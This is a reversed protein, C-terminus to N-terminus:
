RIGFPTSVGLADQQARWRGPRFATLLRKARGRELDHFSRDSQFFDNLGPVTALQRRTVGAFGMTWGEFARAAIPERIIPLVRRHRPDGSIRAYLAEVADEPGELTQFFNGQLHLLMGTVDAARNTRRAKALLTSLTDADFPTTATSAYAIHTLTEVPAECLVSM